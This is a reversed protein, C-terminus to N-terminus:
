ENVILIDHKPIQDVLKQLEEYFMEKVEKEEEEEEEEEAAAYVNIVSINYFKGKIRLRCLRYGIDFLERKDM